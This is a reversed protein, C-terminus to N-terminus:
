QTSDTTEAADAAPDAPSPYPNTGANATVPDASNEASRVIVKVGEIREVTVITKEPLPTNSESRASWMKGEVWVLGTGKLNDIERKVMGAKGLVTEPVNTPQTKHRLALVLIAIMGAVMLIVLLNTVIIGVM